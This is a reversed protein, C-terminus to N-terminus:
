VEIRVTEGWPAEGGSTSVFLVPYEPEDPFPTMLDTLVILCTPDEGSEAIWKTVCGVNTGGGGRPNPVFIDDPLFEDVGAVRTDWYLATLKEPRVDSRIGEIESAFANLDAASISGSTDIAVVIPPMQESQLSPLYLGHPLYRRNPRSMTSDNKATNSVFRRLVDRWDVKPKTIQDVLRQLQGPLKGAAKAAMAAQTVAVKWEAEQASAEQADGDIVDLDDVDNGIGGKGQPQDPLLKFIEEASKGAWDKNLCSGKPMTVGADVIIPNIAFDCALNWKGPDRANRRWNHGFAPHLVEHCYLGLQEARSLSMFWDPNLYIKRGDVAATPVKESVEAILRCALAGFFPHDLILDTRAQAAANLVQDNTFKSM